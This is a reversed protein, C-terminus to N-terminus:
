PNLKAAPTTESSQLWAHQRGCVERALDVAVVHAEGTDAEVLFFLPGSAFSIWARFLDSGFQKTHGTAGPVAEVPFERMDFLAANMSALDAAFHRAAAEDAFQFALVGVERLAQDGSVDDRRVWSRFWGGAFGCRHMMARSVDTLPRGSPLHFDMGIPGDQVREFGDPGSDVIVAASDTRM